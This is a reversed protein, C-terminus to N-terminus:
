LDTKHESLSINVTTITIMTVNDTAKLLCTYTNELLSFHNWRLTQNFVHDINDNNTPFRFIHKHTHIHTTQVKNKKTIKKKKLHFYALLYLSFFLDLYLIKFHIHKTEISKNIGNKKKAKYNNENKKQENEQNMCHDHTNRRKTGPEIRISLISITYDNNIHAM